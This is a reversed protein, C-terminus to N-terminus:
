NKFLYFECSNKKYITQFRSVAKNIKKYNYIEGNYEYIFGWNSSNHRGNLRAITARFVNPILGFITSAVVMSGVSIEDLFVTLPVTTIAPSTLFFFSFMRLSPILNKLKTHPSGFLYSGSETVYAGYIQGKKTKFYDFLGKVRQGRREPTGCLTSCSNLVIVLDESFKDLIPDFVERFTEDPGTETFEGLYALSTASGTKDEFEYSGGHTNIVLRTIAKNSLDLARIKSGLRKRTSEEFLGIRSSKQLVSIVKSEPDEYALYNSIIGVESASFALGDDLTIILTINKVAVEDTKSNPQAYADIPTSAM